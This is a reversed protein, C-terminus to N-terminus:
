EPPFRVSVVQVVPVATGNLCTRAFRWQRVAEIAADNLGAVGRVVRVDKVGGNAEIVVELVVSGALQRQRAAAPYLPPMYDVLPAPGLGPGVRVIGDTPIPPPCPADPAVYALTGRRIPLEERPTVRIPPPEQRGRESDVHTLRSSASGCASEIAALVPLVCWIVLTLSLPKVGANSM